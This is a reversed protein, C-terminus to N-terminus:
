KDRWPAPARFVRRPNDHPIRAPTTIGAIAAQNGGASIENFFLAWYRHM